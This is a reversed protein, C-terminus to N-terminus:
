RVAREAVRAEITRGEDLDLEAWRHRPVQGLAREPLLGVLEARSVTCGGAEAGAAVLDYVEEVGVADLDVLNCSVQAGHGVALGLTRLGPSRLGTALSRSVDLARAARLDPALDGPGDIWLNYAILLPRAGIASAGASPHPVPPGTDPPLAGFASRRVEPLTREPGYLFCPLSLTDGAWRALRDRAAVADELDVRGTGPWPVFPVVDAAGFRPHVGAHSTLDIHEVAATVLSRAGAEVRDLPGGLTLVSRHHDPDSHVDLLTPGASAAM